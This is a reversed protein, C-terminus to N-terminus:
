VQILTGPPQHHHTNMPHLSTAQLRCVQKLQQASLFQWMPTVKCSRSWCFWLPLLKQLRRRGVPSALIHTELDWGLMGLSLLPHPWLGPLLEKSIEPNQGDKRIVFSMQTEVRVSHLQRDQSHVGGSAWDGWGGRDGARQEHHTDGPSGTIM